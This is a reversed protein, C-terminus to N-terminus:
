RLIEIEDWTNPSGIELEAEHVRTGVALDAASCADDEDEDDGEDDGDDSGDAGPGSSTSGPGSNDERDGDDSDDDGSGPGSNSNDGDDHAAVVTDDDEDEDECEIETADTVVGSVEGGGSTITLAGTAPDWATITGAVEDGDEVGDDDTDRDNPDNATQNEDGDDLGDNDSDADRPNTKSRFEGLNRLGDGDPDRRANKAKTSLHHKHEWRDPLRDHDRDRSKAMATGPIALLALAVIAAVILKLEKV